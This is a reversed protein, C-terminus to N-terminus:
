AGMMALFILGGLSLAVLAPWNAFMGFLFGAFLALVVPRVWWFRM